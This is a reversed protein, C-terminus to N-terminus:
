SEIKSEIKKAANIASFDGMSSRFTWIFEGPHLGISSYEYSSTNGNGLGLVAFVQSFGLILIFYFFLFIRLDYIVDTIMVVIPTLIPFIRLFFFTKVILMLVIFIMLVRSITNYPGLSAQTIINAISGYIYVVDNFNWVDEMYKLLGDRVMQSIDYAAPYVIGAAM